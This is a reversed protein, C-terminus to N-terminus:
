RYYIKEHEAEFPVIEISWGEEEMRKKLHRTLYSVYVQESSFHGIEIVAPGNEPIEKLFHYGLEGTIYLDCGNRVVDQWFSSGSGGCVAIKEIKKEPIGRWRIGTYPFIRKIDEVIEKLLYHSELYGIRGYGIDKQSNKLPYLDYAVEEYPHAKILSEVVKNVQDSRVLVEMRGEEVYNLSGKTGIFPDTGELPFFTGTGHGMFSCGQYEGIKGAGAKFVSDRVTYEYGKPIFVTLKYLMVNKLPSLIVTDKLGIKDALASSIGYPSVDLNTHAVYYNIGSKILHFILKGKPEEFNIKKIPKFILPHHTLILDAKIRSAYGYTENDLELSILIKKIEKQRSGVLLGVNDWEEAWVTPFIDEFLREVEAFRVSM